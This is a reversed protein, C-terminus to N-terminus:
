KIKSQKILIELQKIEQDINETDKNALVLNRKKLKLDLLQDELEKITSMGVSGMRVCLNMQGRTWSVEKNEKKIKDMKSFTNM